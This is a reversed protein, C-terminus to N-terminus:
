AFEHACAYDADEKAARSSGFVSVKRIGRYPAFVKAAYAFEKLAASVLKLDAMTTNSRALRFVSAAMEEVLDTRRDLGLAGVFERIRRDLEADGTTHLRRRRTRGAVM